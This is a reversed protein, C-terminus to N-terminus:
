DNVPRQGSNLDTYPLGGPRTPPLCLQSSVSASVSAEHTSAANAALAELRAIHERYFDRHENDFDDHALTFDLARRYAHAAGATDGRAGHLRARLEIGEVEDPHDRELRDCIESAEDFRGANM